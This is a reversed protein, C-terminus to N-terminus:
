AVSGPPHRPGLKIQRGPWQLGYHFGISEEAREANYARQKQFPHARAALMTGVARVPMGDTMWAAM